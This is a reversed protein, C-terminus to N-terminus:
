LVKSIVKSFWLISRPVLLTIIGIDVLLILIAEALLMVTSM